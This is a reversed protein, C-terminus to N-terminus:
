FLRPENGDREEAIMSLALTGHIGRAREVREQHKDAQSRDSHNM